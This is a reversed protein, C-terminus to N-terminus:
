SVRRKRGIKQFLFGLGKYLMFTISANILAKMLNFPILVPILMDIVGSVPMGNHIPTLILNLPIMVVTMAISGSLLATLVAPLSQKRKVINGAVIVFASTAIIHMLIGIVGGATSVTIGQIVSVIVTLVVGSVPGYLFAAILIPVDAMDYELFSASPFLPFRIFYAMIISIAALMGLMCLKLVDVKKM